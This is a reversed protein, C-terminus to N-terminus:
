RTLKGFVSGIPYIFEEFEKPPIDEPNTFDLVEVTMIRKELDINLGVIRAKLYYGELREWNGFSTLSKLLSNKHLVRVFDGLRVDLSMVTDFTVKKRLTSLNEFLTPLVADILSVGTFPLLQGIQYNFIRTGYKDEFDPRPRNEDKVSMSKFFEGQTMQVESFANDFDFEAGSMQIIKDDTYKKVITNSNVPKRFFFNEDEDFGIEYMTMKSLETLAQLVTMGTYNEMDLLINTQMKYQLIFNNFITTTAPTDASSYIYFNYVGSPSYPLIEGLRYQDKNPSTGIGVVIMYDKNSTNATLRLNQGYLFFPQAVRFQLQPNGFFATPNTDFTGVFVEDLAAYTTMIRGAIQLNNVTYTPSGNGIFELSNLHMTFPIAGSYFSSYLYAGNYYAYLVSAGGTADSCSVIIEDNNLDSVVRGLITPSPQNGVGRVLEVYYGANALMGVQRIVISVYNDGDNEYVRIEFREQLNYSFAGRTVRFKYSWTNGLNMDFKKVVYNGQPSRFTKFNEATASQSGLVLNNGNIVYHSNRINTVNALFSYSGTVSNEFVVADINRKNTPVGAVDLLGNVATEIPTDVHWQLYSAYINDGTPVKLTIKAGMTKLNLDGVDYDQKEVLPKTSTGAYVAFVRGIANHPTRYWNNTADFNCQKKVWSYSRREANFNKLTALQTELTIQLTNEDPRYVHRELIVGTFLKVYADITPDGYFIQIKSGYVLYGEPFLGDEYGEKWQARDNTIELNVNSMDWYFGQTRKLASKIKVNNKVKDSIDVPTAETEYKMSSQNWLNRYLLIKHALGTFNGGEFRATLRKDIDRM